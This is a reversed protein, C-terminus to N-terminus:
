LLCAPLLGATAAASDQPQSGSATSKGTSRLVWESWGVVPLAALGAVSVALQMGPPPDQQTGMAASPPPPAQQQGQGQEQKEEATEAEADAM